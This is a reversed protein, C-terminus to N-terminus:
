ATCAYAGAGFHWSTDYASCTLPTGPPVLESSRTTCYAGSSCKAVVRGSPDTLVVAVEYQESSWWLLPCYNPSCILMFENVLYVATATIPGGTALFKCNGTGTFPGGCGAAGPAAAVYTYETRGNNSLDPDSADTAVSVLLSINGVRSPRAKITVAASSRAALPGLFCNFSGNVTCSGQSSSVTTFGAGDLRANLWVSADGPGANSVTVSYTIEDLLLAPDPTDSVAVSLDAAQNNQDSSRKALATPALLGLVLFVVTVTVGFRATRLASTSQNMAKDKRDM